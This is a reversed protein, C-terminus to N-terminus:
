EPIMPPKEVEEGKFVKIVQSLVWTGAWVAMIVSMTTSFTFLPTVQSPTPVQLPQAQLPVLQNM